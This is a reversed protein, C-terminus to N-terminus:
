LLSETNKPSGSIPLRVIFATGVGEETDVIINGGHRRRVIDRAIPLGQGSGKGVKKTTFFMDFIKHRINEPIGTGTDRITIEAWEGNRRSSITITGMGRGASEVAHAANVIMNLFVQNIEGLHCDVLPLDPDLDWVIDAVHKWENRCVAATNELARNLDAPGHEANAPHSFEKMALVIRTVQATGELSQGLAAPIEEMLYDIEANRCIEEFTEAIATAERGENVSQALTKASNVVQAIDGFSDNIFRLNDGVYQAPTNIEHAIGGALTGIAELKQAQRLEEELMGRETELEKRESIDAWVSVLGGDQTKQCTFEVWHGSRAPFELHSPMKRDAAVAELARQGERNDPDIVRNLLERLAISKSIKNDKLLESFRNNFVLLNDNSDFLALGELMSEVADRLRREAQTARNQAEVESTVDTTTGRYGTFRGQEDFLPMGSVRLHMIGHVPNWVKYSFDRFSRHEGMLTELQQQLYLQEQQGHPDYRGAEQVMELRTRGLISAIELGMVDTIRDSIYVIRSEVDTEWMWDSSARLVDELRRESGQMAAQARRREMLEMLMKYVLMGLLFTLLVGTVSIIVVLRESVPTPTPLVAIQWSMRPMELEGIEVDPNDFLRGDGYVTDGATGTTTNLLRLAISNKPLSSLDIKDVLKDLDILVLGVGWPAIGSEGNAKRTFIADLYALLPRDPNSAASFVTLATTDQQMVERVTEGIHQSQLLDMGIAPVPTDEPYVRTVIGDKALTLVLLDDPKPVLGNIIQEFRDQTIDPDFVVITRLTNIMALQENFVNQLKARVALTKVAQTRHVSMKNRDIELSVLFWTAALTIAMALVAATLAKFRSSM